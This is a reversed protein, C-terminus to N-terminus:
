VMNRNKTKIRSRSKIKSGAISKIMPKFLSSEPYLPDNILNHIPDYNNSSSMFASDAQYNRGYDGPDFIKSYGLGGNFTNILKGTSLNIVSTKAEKVRYLALMKSDPSFIMQDIMSLKFGIVTRGTKTETIKFPIAMTSDMSVTGGEVKYRGDVTCNYCSKPAIRSEVEKLTDGSIIFNAFNIHTPNDTSKLVTVKVMTPAKWLSYDSFIYRSDRSFGEFNFANQTFRNLILQYNNTDWIKVYEDNATFLYKGDPSYSVADRVDTLNLVKFLRGNSANWLTPATQPDGQRGDISTLIYRGGEPDAQNAPSFMARFVKDKLRINLLSKGNSTLWTNVTKNDSMAIAFKGNPSFQADNFGITNEKFIITKGTKLDFIKIPNKQSSVIIQQGNPSFALSSIANEKDAAMGTVRQFIPAMFRKLSSTDMKEVNNGKKSLSDAMKKINELGRDFALMNQRAALGDLTRVLDGTLADYISVTGEGSGTAIFRGDPSYEARTINFDIRAIVKGDSVRHVVPTSREKNYILLYNGDPSFAISNADGDGTDGRDKNDYNMIYLEKGSGVDWLIATNDNAITAMFKNNPSLAVSTISGSHGKPVMLNPFQGKAIFSFFLLIAPLIVKM